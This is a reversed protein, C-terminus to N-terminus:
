FISNIATELFQDVREAKRKGKPIFSRCKCSLANAMLNCSIRRTKRRLRAALACSTM